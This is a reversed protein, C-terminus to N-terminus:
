VRPVMAALKRPDDEEPESSPVAGPRLRERPRRPPDQGDDDPAHFSALLEDADAELEEETEGVLRKAQTETLGKKLAVRLRAAETAAAAASREATIAREELKQQDSKTADEHGKVKEALQDRESKLKAVDGRVNQLLNWAKEPNFNEPDDWPPRPAPDPDPDAAPAPAPDPDPDPDDNLPVGSARLEAHRYPWEEELAAKLARFEPTDFLPVQGM